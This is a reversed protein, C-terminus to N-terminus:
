RAERLWLSVHSPTMTQHVVGRLDDGLADLDLEDRLRASFSDLTRAADYRSRYFRRDVVAQVRGRLPRFLAAVALTSAAVALDSDGAVPDLVVRFVLVSGLYTGLLTATLVGYVLTRKIVLDIDYLRHRLIAVAATAPFAIIALAVLLATVTDGIGTDTDTVLGVGAVAAIMAVAFWAGYALWKIQRRMTTGSARYRRVLGVVALLVLLFFVFPAVASVVGAVPSVVTDGLPNGLGRIDLLPGPEFVVALTWVVFLALTGYGVARWRGTLFTGDPFLLLLLVLCCFSPEGAWAAVWAGATVAAGTQGDRALETAVVYLLETLASIAGIFVFLWGVPNSPHASVVLAGITAYAVFALLFLTEVGEVHGWSRGWTVAVM